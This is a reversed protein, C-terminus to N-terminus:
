LDRPDGPRGRAARSLEVHGTPFHLIKTGPIGGAVSKVIM